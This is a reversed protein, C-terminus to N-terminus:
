KNPTYSRWSCPRLFSILIVYHTSPYTSVIYYLQSGVSSNVEGNWCKKLLKDLKEKSEDDARIYARNIGQVDITGLLHLLAPVMDPIYPKLAGGGSKAIRLITLVSVQKVEEVSSDIGKGLLAAKVDTIEPHRETM